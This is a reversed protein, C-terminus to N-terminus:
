FLAAAPLSCFICYFMIGSVAASAFASARKGDSLRLLISEVASLVTIILLIWQIKGTGIAGLVSSSGFRLPIFVAACLITGAAAICDSIIFTRTGRGFRLSILLSFCLMGTLLPLSFHRQLQAFRPLYHFPSGIRVSILFNNMIESIGQFIMLPIIVAAATKAFGKRGASIRGSLGATILMLLVLLLMRLGILLQARQSLPDFWFPTDNPIELDNQFHEMLASIMSRNVLMGSHFAPIVRSASSNRYAPLWEYKAALTLIDDPLGAALGSPPCILARSAFSPFSVAELAKAAGEFFAALGIRSHDTFSRTALFTYGADVLNETKFDPEPGTMGQSFDEMTLVVFGRRAFEMAIHDGTYRDGATGFILLVSPRLNMSSAQLPRYLRAGYMFGEYSEADIDYILINGSDTEIFRSLGATVLFVSFLILLASFSLPKRFIRM